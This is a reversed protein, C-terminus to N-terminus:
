EFHAIARPWKAKQPSPAASRRDRQPSSRRMGTSRADQCAHVPEDRPRPLPPLETSSPQPQIAGNPFPQSGKADVGKSKQRCQPLLTQFHRSPPHPSRHEMTSRSRPPTTAPVGLSRSGPRAVTSDIAHFVEACRNTLVKSNSAPTASEIPITYRSNTAEIARSQVTPAPPGTSRVHPM